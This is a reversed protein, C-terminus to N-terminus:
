NNTPQNLQLLVDIDARKSAGTKINAERARYKIQEINSLHSEAMRKAARIAMDVRSYIRAFNEENMFEQGRGTRRIYKLINVYGKIKKNDITIELRNADKMIVKLRDRFLGQEGILRYLESQESKTLEAGNSHRRMGPRSDFEIDILFQQEPSQDPYSGTVRSWWDRNSGVPKGTVWDYKKPLAGEPDIIDTWQNRNRILEGIDQEVERLTGYMTKGLENRFGSLPLMNNLFQAAWRNRATPNGGFIDGLPELNALMQRNTISAGLIFSMKRGFHELKVSSVSDFNDVIDTTFALWDGIPGLWEYSYWNGDLGQYTKPKWGQERRTRQVTKDWHGNGRLKDQTAMVFATMVAMSGTAVRGRIENRMAKFKAIYNGSMDEGRSALLEAIEELSFEEVRKTGWPGLFKAYEGAFKNGASIRSAESYKGFMDLINTATRPFMLVSRLIPVRNLMTNLGTVMPSDLNLAIERTAFDVAKDTIMGNNDWNKKYLEQWGEQFEKQTWNGDPYKELLMDFMTGKDQALKNTARSFGDLATMANPGFRLWPHNNLANQEDYITLLANIGHEDNKAAAEGMSRLVNLGEEEKIILDDRVVYSIADPDTSAKRFINSMHEWGVQLTDTLGFYQHSARRLLNLDGERLAGYFSHVPRAVLGGFNGYLAKLPTGLASLVSNYYATSFARNILSPTEPNNDIFAKSFVGLRNEVYKNIKQISDIKGNSFEYALMLPELFEPNRESMARLTRTWSQANPVIESIATDLDETLKKAQQIAKANDKKAADKWINLANERSGWEFAAIDREISFLELRDLIQQQARRVAITGKMLRAGEALDSIQGAESTLLYAKAKQADIDVFDDMYNKMAKVIANHAIKNVKKVGNATTKFEELLKKLSNTPLKPNYLTEALRTGASDIAEWSVKKGSALEASYQGVDKLDKVLSKILSRERVTDIESSLLRAAETQLNSLRGQTTDINNAIRAQDVGAGLVGDSDKSRIGTEYEDPIDDVGLRPQQNTVVERTAKDNWYENLKDLERAHREENRLIADEIPNDSYKVDDLPDRIVRDLVEQKKVNKTLLKSVREVSFGAGIIRTLGQFIGAVFGLYVGEMANARAKQDPSLKDSVWSDPIWQHFVWQNNKWETALTDNMKNQEVVLDVGVGSGLDAGFKSLRAFIPNNGLKQVLAPAVGAKHVQTGTQLIKGRLALMPLVLGSLNRVGQALGDEFNTPKPLNVSPVLNLLDAATDYLGTGVASMRQGFQGEVSFFKSPDGGYIFGGSTEPEDEEVPTEEEVQPSEEVSGDEEVQPSEEPSPGVTTPEPSQQNQYLQRVERSTQEVQELLSAPDTPLSAMADGGIEESPDTVIEGSNNTEEEYPNTIM